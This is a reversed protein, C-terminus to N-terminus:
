ATGGLSARRVNLAELVGDPVLAAGLENAPRSNGHFDSGGTVLLGNEDAIYAYRVSDAPSCEAHYAEIGLLGAAVLGPILDDVASLVPHALVPLGGADRIWAIVEGPTPVTKRVYGPRGEGLYREFAEAISSVHGARVMAHAVHSRGVSAGRAVDLVDHMTVSAIDCASLADVIREARALRQTRQGALRENLLRDTHDVWYGLIHIAREGAETSLEVAPIVTLSTGAAAIQARRVGAVTDHDALAIAPIGRELAREVIAEPTLTGDSATSHIHLDPGM